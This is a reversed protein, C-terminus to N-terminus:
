VGAMIQEMHAIINKFPEATIMYNSMFPHDLLFILYLTMTIISTYAIVLLFHPVKKKMGFFYTFSISLFGSVLIIFWVFGPITNEIYLYRSRRSNSLKNLESFSEDFLSKNSIKNVDMKLFVDWLKDYANRVKESRKGFTMEDWEDYCVAKCYDLVSVQIERKLSDPFGSAIHFLNSQTNIELYVNKQAENYESWNLYVVFSILVSFMISFANFIYGTVEHNERLLEHPFRKKVSKLCFFSIVISLILIAAISIPIPIRLLFNM